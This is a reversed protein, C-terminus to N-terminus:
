KIILSNIRNQLKFYENILLECEHAFDLSVNFTESIEKIFIKESEDYKNDSMALGICEFIIIKKETENSNLAIYKIIKSIDTSEEYPLFQIDMEECYQRIMVTEEESYDGDSYALHYALKLFNNKLDSKLMSLYM